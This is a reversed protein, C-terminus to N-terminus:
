EGLKINDVSAVSVLTDYYCGFIYKERGREKLDTNGVNCKQFVCVCVGAFM